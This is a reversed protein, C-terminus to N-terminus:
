PECLPVKTLVEQAAAGIGSPDAMVILSKIDDAVGMGTVLSTGTVYTQVSTYTSFPYPFSVGPSPPGGAIKAQVVIGGIPALYMYSNHVTIASPQTVQAGSGLSFVAQANGCHNQSNNNFVVAANALMQQQTTPSPFPLGGVGQYVCQPWATPVSGGPNGGFANVVRQGGFYPQDDPGFNMTLQNQLGHQGIPM